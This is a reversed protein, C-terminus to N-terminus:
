RSICGQCTHCTVGYVCPASCHGFLVAAGDPWGAAPWSGARGTAGNFTISKVRSSLQPDAAIRKLQGMLPGRITGYYVSSMGRHLSYTRNGITRAIGIGDLNNLRHLSPATHSAPELCGPVHAAASGLM